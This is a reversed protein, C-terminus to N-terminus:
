LYQGTIKKKTTEKDPKPVLTISAEYFSNPFTQSPLEKSAQYCEGTFGDPGLNKKIVSEIEKVTIPRKKKKKGKLKRM